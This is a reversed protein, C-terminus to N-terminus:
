FRFRLGTSFYRGIRDFATSTPSSFSTPNSTVVPPDQNFLNSVSLFAEHNGGLAKLRYTATLDTYGIAPSRNDNTDKGEVKDPDFLAESIYRQQLFISWDDKAYRVQLSGRLKPFNPTGLSTNRPSGPAQSFGRISKNLLLRVSAEGGMFEHRYAAEFDFGATEQVSLNLQRTYIILTNQPTVTFQNCLLQNGAACQDLTQQATLNGIADEISIEYYDLSAQLGPAFTPRYVVGYTLTTAREPKLDPNGSSITLAQTTKGKYIQNNSNQTASNFLELINPGRIDRSKTLRLRLQDNVAYNLGYKWTTVGGSQSYDAYRAALSLSLDKIFPKDKLLPAGLEGYAEKIDYSGALPLPNFFNFSGPRGQQSAPAGRIGTVDTVLPSLADVTQDASEKRYEGGFAVEIPGAGFSLTEGLDGSFNLAAVTQELTLYKVSDGTVYKIAAASPSGEGFLNLPVCGADLGSLTSRCVIQGNAPNVVADVAAYLRRNITLNNERLEQETRGYTVYADFKWTDTIRGESGFSLRKMDSITEIQVVPFDRDYRGMTFSLIKGAVMRALVDTPLYANDRFITFQSASGTHLNVFNDSTVHSNSIMGEAFLKLDPTLEFDLHGFANARFQDPSFGINIRAGDGGSQFTTGVVAGPVFTSTAGGPLFQTGKLTSNTILGGYTGLGNRIDSVVLVAPTGGAPNPLQGAAKEFWDRGTNETPGLGKQAAVEASAVFHVRDDMFGRGFTLSVQGSPLDNYTSIGGQVEGKLGEFRTDLVFNVVGAVADSGYAASAGGTVVDVRQVLGQPLINIDVSGSSNTAVLRHGNLLVLNRNPGLGRLNLLNQGNTGGTAATAPNESRTSANFTPLQTLADALNRPAARKLDESATATVPTPAQFGSSQLRTGTVVVEDIATDSSVAAGQAHAGAAPLIQAALTMVALSVGTGLTRHRKSTNLM